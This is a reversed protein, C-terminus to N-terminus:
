RGPLNALAVSLDDGYRVTYAPIHGAALEAQVEGTGYSAGFSAPDIVVATAKVGRSALHRVAGVWAPRISPTVVMVTTNRNFRAGEALLIQELNITGRSHLVALTELLREEQRPGRDSQIIEVHSGSPYTLLGVAREQRLFHQVMSAAVVITYAETGPEINPVHWSEWPVEPVAIPPLDEYAVGVHVSREMDLVLWIDSMPDLEFEKVILRGTRATSRWHIRNFSDGPVYERVGSVNTTVYHTRRRVVNGGTLEGLLPQFYPLPVTRPYIVLYKELPLQREFIFLGFPDGTRVTVPGLRFRGRRLSMTRVTRTRSEGRGVGSVVFSARHGPLESHDLLELWLKPLFGTNEVLFREEVIQGVQSHASPTIRTVRVWHLNIWAWLFSFILIGGLLYALTFFISDTTIFAVTTALLWLVFVLWSRAINRKLM